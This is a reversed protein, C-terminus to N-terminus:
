PKPEGKDDQARLAAIIAHLNASLTDELKSRARVNRRVAESVDGENETTLSALNLLAEDADKGLRELEDALTM